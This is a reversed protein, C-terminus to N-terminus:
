TCGTAVVDYRGDVDLLAYPCFVVYHGSAIVKEGYM